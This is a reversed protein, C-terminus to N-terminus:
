AEASGSPADARGGPYASPSQEVRRKEGLIWPCWTRVIPSCAMIAAVTTCIVYLSTVGEPLRVSMRQNLVDFVKYALFHLGLLLVTNRGCAELLKSHGVWQALAFIVIISAFAGAHFFVLDAPTQQLYYYINRKTWIQVWVGIALSATMCIWFPVGGIRPFRGRRMLNGFGFFPILILSFNAKWPWYQPFPCIWSSGIYGLISLALLSLTITRTARLRAIWFFAVEVTFLSLLFWVPGNQLTRGHVACFRGCLDLLWQGDLPCGHSVAHLVEWPLGLLSFFAYPILLRFARRRLFPFFTAHKDPDYLYGSLAFFLPVHFSNIYSRLGPLTNRHATLVLLIAIGRLVDVWAIRIRTKM